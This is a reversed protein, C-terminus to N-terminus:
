LASWVTTEIGPLSVAMERSTTATTSNTGSESATTDATTSVTEDGTMGVEEGSGTTGGDDACALGLTAFTTAILIRKM